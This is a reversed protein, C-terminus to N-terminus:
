KLMDLLEGRRKKIREVREGREDEGGAGKIQRVVAAAPDSRWGVGAARARAQRARGREKGLFDAISDGTLARDENRRGAGTMTGTSDVSKTDGRTEGLRSNATGTGRTTGTRVRGMGVMSSSSGGGRDSMGMSTTSNRGGATTGRSSKGDRWSGKRSLGGRSARRSQSNGKVGLVQPTLTMDPNKRQEPTLRLFLSVALHRAPAGGLVSADGGSCCTAIGPCLQTLVDGLAFVSLSTCPMSSSSASWDSSVSGAAFLGQNSEEGAVRADEEAKGEDDVSARLDEGAQVITICDSGCSLLSRKELVDRVPDIMLDVNTSGLSSLSATGVGGLEHVEPQGDSSKKTIKRSSLKRALAVNIPKLKLVKKSSTDKEEGQQQQAIVEEVGTDLKGLLDGTKADYAVVIGGDGECVVIPCGGKGSRMAICNVVASSFDEARRTVLSILDRPDRMVIDLISGGPNSSGSKSSGGTSGRTRTGGRGTNRFSSSSLQGSNRRERARNFKRTSEVDLDHFHVAGQIDGSVLYREGAVFCAATVAGQHRSCGGICSSSASDWLVVAGDFCGFAIKSPCASDGVAVSTISSPMIWRGLVNVCKEQIWSRQNGSSTGDAGGGSDGAAKGGGEEKEKVSEEYSPLKYLKWVNSLCRWIIVTTAFGRKSTAMVTGLTSRGGVPGPCFVVRPLFKSRATAMENENLIVEEGAPAGKGKSPDKEGKKSKGSKASVQSSDDALSRPEPADFTEPPAEIRFTPLGLDILPADQDEAPGDNIAGRANEDDEAEEYELKSEHKEGAEEDVAKLVNIGKTNKKAGRMALSVPDTDFDPQIPPSLSWFCSAGDKCGAHLYLGDDSLDLTDIPSQTLGMAIVKCSFHKGGEGMLTQWCEVIAIKSIMPRGEGGEQATEKSPNADKGDEEAADLEFPAALAVRVCKLQGGKPRAPASIHSVGCPIDTFVSCNGLVCSSM